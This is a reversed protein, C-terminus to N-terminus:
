NRELVALITIHACKIGLIEMHLWSIYSLVTTYIVKFFVHIM